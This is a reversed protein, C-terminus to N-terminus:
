AFGWGIYFEIFPDIRSIVPRIAFFLMFLFSSVTEFSIAEKQMVTKRCKKHGNYGM